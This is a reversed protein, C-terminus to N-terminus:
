ATLGKARQGGAVPTEAVVRRVIVEILPGSDRDHAGIARSTPMLRHALVPVALAHVDDPLVFDRGDLAARAKAARVLQLTARPSAGLRLEAITAPPARSTSSTSRCPPPSTCRARVVGILERSRPPTPRGARPRRAPEVDDRTALMALEASPDPYGMSIRMMFRDLQAEPLPYTGEMEIPNQTAVVM